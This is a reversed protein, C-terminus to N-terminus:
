QIWVQPCCTFGMRPNSKPVVMVNVPCIPFFCSRNLCKQFILVSKELLAALASSIAASKKFIGEDRNTISWTQSSGVISLLGNLTPNSNSLKIIEDSINKIEDQLKQNPDRQKSLNSKIEAHTKINIGGMSRIKGKLVSSISRVIYNLSIKGHKSSSGEVEGDINVPKSTDSSDFNIVRDREDIIEDL